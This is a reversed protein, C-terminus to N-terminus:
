YRLRFLLLDRETCFEVRINDPRAGGSFYYQQIGHENLIWQKWGETGPLYQCNNQDLWVDLLRHWQSVPITIATM